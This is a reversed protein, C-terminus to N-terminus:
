RGEGVHDMLIRKGGSAYEWFINHHHHSKLKCYYEVTYSNTNIDDYSAPSDTSEGHARPRHGLSHGLIELSSTM